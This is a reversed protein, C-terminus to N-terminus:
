SKRKRKRECDSCGEDNMDPLTSNLKKISPSHMKTMVEYFNDKKEIASKLPRREESQWYNDHVRFGKKTKQLHLLENQMQKIRASKDESEHMRNLFSFDKHTPVFYRDSLLFQNYSLERGIPDFRTQPILQFHNIFKFETGKIPVRKENMVNVYSIGHTRMYCIRFTQEVAKYLSLEHHLIEVPIQLDIKGNKTFVYFDYSLTSDLSEVVLHFSRQDDAEVSFALPECQSLDIEKKEISLDFPIVSEESSYSQNYFVIDETWEDDKNKILWELRVSPHGELQVNMKDDNFLNIYGEIRSCPPSHIDGEGDIHGESTALINLKQHITRNWVSITFDSTPKNKFTLVFNLDYYSNDHGSSPNISLGM